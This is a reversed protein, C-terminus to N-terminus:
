KLFHACLVYRSRYCHLYYLPGFRACLPPFGLFRKIANSIVHKYYFVIHLSASKKEIKYIQTPCKQARLIRLSVQAGSKQARRCKRIFKQPGSMQPDSVQPGSMQPLVKASWCKRIAMPFKKELNPFIKYNESFSFHILKSRYFNKEMAIRLYRRAM